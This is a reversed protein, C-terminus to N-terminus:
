RKALAERLQPLLQLADGVIGLDALEFIPAEPDTNIAIVTKATQMGARHQIAGSIGAAIYVDPSVTKGTQGVQYALPCWGADTAARSAGVGAGLAEALEEVLAFNEASGLGRGGAVVIRADTLQPRSSKAAAVHDLVILPRDAVRAKAEHARVSPASPNETAVSSGPRVVYVASLAKPRVVVDVSGGFVPKTASLDPAVGAVDTIIALGRRIAIRAAIERSLADAPTIVVDTSSERLVDVIAPVYDAAWTTGDAPMVYSEVFRAGYRSALNVHEADDTCVAISCVDGLSRGLTLLEALAPHIAGEATGIVVAVKFAM